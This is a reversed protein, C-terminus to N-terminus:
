GPQIRWVISGMEKRAEKEREYEEDWGDM